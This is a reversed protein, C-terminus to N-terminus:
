LAVSTIRIDLSCMGSQSGVNLADVSAHCVAGNAPYIRTSLQVAAWLAQVGDGLVKTEPTVVIRPVLVFRSPPTDYRKTEFTSSFSDPPPRPSESISPYLNHYPAATVHLMSKSHRLRYDSLQFDRQISSQGRQEKGGRGAGHTGPEFDLQPRQAPLFIGHEVERPDTTSTSRRPRTALGLAQRGPAAAGPNNNGRKKPITLPRDGGPPEPLSGASADSSLTETSRRRTVSKQSLRSESRKIIHLPRPIDAGLSRNCLFSDPCHTNLDMVAVDFM